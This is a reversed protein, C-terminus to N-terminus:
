LLDFRSSFVNSWTETDKLEEEMKEFNRISEIAVELERDSPKNTTLIQLFKLLGNSKIIPMLILTMGALMIYLIINRPAVFSVLLGIIIYFILNYLIENSGCNKSFRSFKKIEDLQPVRHLKEYANIAMHEAAHYKGAMRQNGRKSKIDYVFEIFILMNYSITISFYIAGIVLEIRGFLINLIILVIDFIRIINRNIRTKDKSLALSMAVVSPIIRTKIKGFDDRYTESCIIPFVQSYFVIGNNTAYGREISRKTKM